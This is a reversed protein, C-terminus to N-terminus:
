SRGIRKRLEERARAIRSKVTGVKCGLVEAIDEYAMHKVNRLILAERNVEPLNEMERLIESQWEDYILEQDPKRHEQDSIEHFHADREDDKKSQHISVQMHTGRRRNWRYRNRAQNVVVRYMWTSFEADGRFRPLAKYMRVFADQVVEEADSRRGLVGFAIQFAKGVHRAMLTEFAEDDGDVSRKILESDPPGEDAYETPRDSKSM